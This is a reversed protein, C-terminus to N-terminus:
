VSVSLDEKSLEDAVDLMVMSQRYQEALATRRFEASPFRDAIIKEIEDFQVKFFEKRLNVKNVRCSNFITHLEHELGVADDSFILGHVDFPFPVSASSLENIREMPEMRRTMGIKYIDDGFSGINSIIYVYGAKGNELSLIQERKDEIENIQKELEAIRDNLVGAKEPTNELQIKINEIENRYKTEEQEIHKREQELAKREEVEQRM